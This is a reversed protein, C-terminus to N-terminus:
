DDDFKRITFFWVYYAALLPGAIVILYPVLGGVGDRIYAFGQIVLAVALAILIASLVFNQPRRSSWPRETSPDSDPM